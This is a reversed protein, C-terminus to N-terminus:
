GRLQLEPRHPRHRRYTEHVWATGPHSAFRALYARVSPPPDPRAMDPHSRPDAAPALLAAAALDAVSFRDGVLHGDPGAEKAVFELGARTAEIARAVAEPEIEMSRRMVAKVVPFGARYLGRALPGRDRAFMGCVYGPEDLLVSFLGRRVQPGIEADLWAQIELARRRLAPDQPYLPPDPFRRELVELIRASGAVVEGDLRLVPTETAGTLRRVLPAHPGPLLARRRHPVGKWDLAWRAKENYHSYHFQLLEVGAAAMPRLM